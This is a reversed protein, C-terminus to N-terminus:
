SVTRDSLRPSVQNCGGAILFCLFAGLAMEGEMRCYRDRCFPRHSLRGTSQTTRLMTSSRVSSKLMAMKRVQWRYAPAPSCTRTLPFCQPQHECRSSNHAGFILHLDPHKACTAVGNRCGINGTATNRRRYPRPTLGRARGNVFCHARHWRLIQGCEVARSPPGM